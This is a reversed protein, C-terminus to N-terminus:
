VHKLLWFALKWRSRQNPSVGSPGFELFLVMESFSSDCHSVGLRTECSSDEEGVYLELKTESSSDEEGEYLELM